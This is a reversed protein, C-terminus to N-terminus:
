FDLDPCPAFQINFEDIDLTTYQDPFLGLQKLRKKPDYLLGKHCLRIFEEVIIGGELATGFIKAWDYTFMAGAGKVVSRIKNAGVLPYWRILLFRRFEDLDLRKDGVKLHGLAIDIKIDM